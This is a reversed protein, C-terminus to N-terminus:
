RIHAEITAGPVQGRSVAIRWRHRRLAVEIRARLRRQPPRAATATSLLEGAIALRDHVSIAELVRQKLAATTPANAAVMDVLHAPETIRAITLVWSFPVSDMDELLLEIARARFDEFGQATAGADDQLLAVNASLYPTRHVFSV